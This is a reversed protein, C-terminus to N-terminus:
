GIAGAMMSARCHGARHERVEDAFVRLGSRVMQAAGDPLGCGGRGPIESTWRDIRALMTDTNTASEVARLAGAIADLGFVCPGCQGASQQAFWAAIAAVTSVGCAQSPLFHLVGCGPNAGAPALSDISIRARFAEHPELWTGYYGGVLVGSVAAADGGNGEFVDLLSAGSEIECVVPRPLAGSLSALRTGPEEPTGVSRYWAAGRATILAVHALTEANQVLTPRKGVGRERPTPGSAPVAQSGNLMQVLAGSEGAVYRDPVVKMEVRIRPDEFAKREALAEEMGAISALSHGGVCIYIREAGIAAATCLAGDIILHPIRSMLLADKGAPPEGEAGNVVIVPRRKGGAVSRWKKATPFNAGGRGTLGSREVEATIRSDGGKQIRPPAPHTVRHSSLPTYSGALPLGALLRPELGPAVSASWGSLIANM